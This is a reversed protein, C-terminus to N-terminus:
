EGLEKVRKKALKEVNSIIKAPNGGVIAGEPVDHVVVSGAAVIANPGIKVNYMIISKAGIFVNDFIEIKGTRYLYGGADKRKESLLGFYQLSDNLMHHIVDHTCFCVDSAIKVNNHIYVCEPDSPLNRPYWYNRDGFEAFYKIKKLYIARKWGGRYLQNGVLVWMRRWRKMDM